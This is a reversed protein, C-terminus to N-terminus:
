LLTHPLVLKQIINANYDQTNHCWKMQHRTVLEGSSSPAEMTVEKRFISAANKQATNTITQLSPQIMVFFTMFVEFGTDQYSSFSSDVAV